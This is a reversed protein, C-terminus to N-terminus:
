AVEVRFNEAEKIKQEKPLYVVFRTHASTNDISLSGGHEEAVGKAVSLGLGTGKGVPKLTFFPQFIREQVELSIGPGSDTVVLNFGEGAALVELRIWRQDLAAVADVANSLLNLLIQSVQVSRCEIVADEPIQNMSFQVDARKFLASCLNLTEEVIDTIKTLAFPDREGSRALHKLGRIIKAIRKTMAEIDNVFTLIQTPGLQDVKLLRQLNSARGAIIALPNNVEHAMVAALEGLASLKATSALQAKQAALANEAERRETIDRSVSVICSGQDKYLALPFEITHFWRAEGRTTIMSEEPTTKVPTEPGQHSTKDGFFERYARNGWEIKQNQTQVKIVDPIADLVQHWFDTEYIRAEQEGALLHTAQENFSLLYVLTTTLTFFTTPILFSQIVKQLNADIAIWSNGSSQMEGLFFIFPLFAAGLLLSREKSSFLLAALCAAPFYLLFIGSPQGFCRSYFLVVSNFIVIIGVRSLNFHGMKNLFIFGVYACAVPILLLGLLWEQMASFMLSYPITSAFLILCLVNTFRIRKVVNGDLGPRVGTEIFQSLKGINRLRM